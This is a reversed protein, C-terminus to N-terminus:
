YKEWAYSALTAYVNGPGAMADKTEPVEEPEEDVEGDDLEDGLPEEDGDLDVEAEPDVLVADEDGDADDAVDCPYQESFLGVALKVTAARASFACLLGLRMLRTM